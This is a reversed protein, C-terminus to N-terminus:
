TGRVMLSGQPVKVMEKCNQGCVRIASHVESRIFLLEQFRFATVKPVPKSFSERIQAPILLRVNEALRDQLLDIVQEETSEKRGFLEDTGIATFLKM